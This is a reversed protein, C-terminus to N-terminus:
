RLPMPLPLLLSVVQLGILLVLPSLDIGGITPMRSRVPRLLPENITWLIITAPSFQNPSLWSLLAQILITFFYLNCLLTIAKLIAWWLAMLHIAGFHISGLLLDLEINIFCLVIAFVIAATDINHWRPIGKALLSVPMTTVRHVFQCIPNNFPAHTAQLLIRGIVITIYLAFVTDLLFLLATNFNNYM